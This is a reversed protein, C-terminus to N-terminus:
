FVTKIKSKKAHKAIDGWRHDGLVEREVGVSGSGWWASRSSTAIKEAARVPDGGWGQGVHCM